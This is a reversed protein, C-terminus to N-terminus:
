YHIVYAPYAAFDNHVVHINGSVVSTSTLWVKCVLMCPRGRVFGKSYDMTSSFYLGYGFLGHNSHGTDFGQNCIINYLEVKSGHFLLCERGDVNAMQFDMYKLFLEKNQVREIHQLTTACALKQLSKAELSGITVSYFSTNREQFEETWETPYYDREYLVFELYRDILNGSFPGSLRHIRAALVGSQQMDCAELHLRYADPSLPCVCYPCCLTKDSTLQM